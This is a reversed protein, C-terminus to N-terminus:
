IEKHTNGATRSIKFMRRWCWRQFGDIKKRGKKRKWQARSGDTTMISRAFTYGAADERVAEDRDELPGNAYHKGPLFVAKENFRPWNLAQKHVISLEPYSSLQCMKKFRPWCFSQTIPLLPELKLSRFLLHVNPLSGTTSSFVAGHASEVSRSTRRYVATPIM